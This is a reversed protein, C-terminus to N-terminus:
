RRKETDDEHFDHFYFSTANTFCHFTDRFHKLETWSYSYIQNNDTQSDLM